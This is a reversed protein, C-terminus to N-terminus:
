EKLARLADDSRSIERQVVIASEIDESVLRSRFKGLKSNLWYVLLRCPEDDHQFVDAYPVMFQLAKAVFDATIPNYLYVALQHLNQFTDVISEHTSAVPPEPYTTTNSFDSRNLRKANADM